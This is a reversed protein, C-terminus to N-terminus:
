QRLLQKKKMEFEEQTIAGKDLLEKFKLLEDAESFSSEVKSINKRSQICYDLFNILSRPPSVIMETCMGFPYSLTIYLENTGGVTKTEKKSTNAGVIAGVGGFLAGGVVARGIGGKSKTVMTEGVKEIHYSEIEDFRYYKSAPTCWLKNNEDITVFMTGFQKIVRTEKFNSKRKRNENYCKKITDVTEFESNTLLMSCNLCIVGDAVKMKRKLINGCVPCFVSEENPIVMSKEKNQKKSKSLSKICMVDVCIFALLMIINIIDPSAITAMLGGLIMISCFVAIVFKIVKM